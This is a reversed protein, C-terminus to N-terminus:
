KWSFGESTTLSRETPVLCFISIRFARIRPARIRIRSSGVATRVGCSVSSSKRSSSSNLFFPCVIMKMEWLSFSTFSIQSRIVTM